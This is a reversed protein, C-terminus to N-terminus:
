ERRLQRAIDSDIRLMGDYRPAIRVAIKIREKAWAGMLADDHVDAANAPKAGHPWGCIVADDGMQGSRVMAYLQGTIELIMQEQRREMRRKPIDLFLTGALILGAEIEIDRRRAFLFAPFDVKTM